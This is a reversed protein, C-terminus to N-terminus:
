IRRFKVIEEETAGHEERLEKDTVDEAVLNEWARDFAEETDDDFENNEGKHTREFEEITLTPNGTGGRIKELYLADSDTPAHSARENYIEDLEQETM